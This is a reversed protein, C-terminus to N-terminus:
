GLPPSRFSGEPDRYAGPGRHPRLRDALAGVDLGVDPVGLRAALEAVAPQALRAADMAARDAFIRAAPGDTVVRGRAMVVVREVNAAVFDMDHTITVVAKGGERMRDLLTAIRELGALDQGATPEDFVMVPCDLAVVSAITVFKRVSLPLDHPNEDLAEGLGALDAAAQVRAQTEDAGLRLRRLGYGIEKAVSPQFIQDDPNQFVYGVSRAVQAATRRRTDEGAIRVTGSSPRLLANMCKVTTTKGAGNQGIIAVSEGAGVALSVGDVARVGGPYVYSVDDLEVLAM